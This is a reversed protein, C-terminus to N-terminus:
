ESLPVQVPHRLYAVLDRIQSETLQDLLGDPMPSRDTPTIEDIEDAAVTQRETPGQVTVTRPTREVVVGTLVRGDRLTVISLRWDRNV